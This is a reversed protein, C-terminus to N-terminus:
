ASPPQARYIFAADVDTGPISIIAYRGCPTGSPEFYTACIVPGVLESYYDIEFGVGLAGPVADLTFSGGVTSADVSFVYGTVGNVAGDSAVWARRAIEIGSSDNTLVHGRIEQTAVVDAHSPVAFSGVAMVIMVLHSKGLLNRM